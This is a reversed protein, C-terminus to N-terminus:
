CFTPSLITVSHAEEVEAKRRALYEDRPKTDSLSSLQQVTEYTERVENSDVHDLASNLSIM